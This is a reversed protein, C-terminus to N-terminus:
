RVLVQLLRILRRQFEKDAALRPIHRRKSNILYLDIGHDALGNHIARMMRSASRGAVHHWLPSLIDGSAGARHAIRAAAGGLRGPEILYILIRDRLLQSSLAYSMAAMALKTDAFIRHLGRTKQPATLSAADIGKVRRIVRSSLNVVLSCRNRTCGAALLPQLESIMIFPAITNVAFQREMGQATTGRESAHHSELNYLADLSANSAVIDRAVQKTQEMNSLDAAWGQFYQDPFQTSLSAVQPAVREDDPGVLVLNWGARALYWVVEHGIGCLGGTVVGTRRSLQSPRFPWSEQTDSADPHNSTRTGTTMFGPGCRRQM